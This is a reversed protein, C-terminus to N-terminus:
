NTLHFAGMLYVSAGAENRRLGYTVASGALTTGIHM